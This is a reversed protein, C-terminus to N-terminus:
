GSIQAELGGRCRNFREALAQRTAAEMPGISFWAAWLRAAEAAGGAAAGGSMRQALKQVQLDMRAQRAESPSDIGTHFECELLLAEALRHQEELAQLVTAMQAEDGDGVLALLRDHRQRLASQLTADTLAPEILEALAERDLGDGRIWAQELRDLRAARTALASFSALRQRQEAQEQRTQLQQLLRDSRQEATRELPALEALEARCADALQQLSQPSVNDDQLAVEIRQHIERLQAQRADTEAREQARAAEVDLFIPDVLERLEIWQQQDRRRDGIGLTKWQQQAQKARDPRQEPASAALDRRLEALLKRKALEVQDAQAQLQADVLTLDARLRQGLERRQRPDVDDLQRLSDGLSRRLAILARRDHGIRGLQQELEGTQQSLAETRERRLEKRKEFFPRAPKLAQQILAHFRRALGRYPAKPDIEEILDLRKWEDQLERVRTAMADPHLGAAPLAAAEDCLRRRIENNSWRQWDLLKRAEGRLASVEARISRPLGGLAERLQELRELQQRAATAQQGEVAARLPPLLAMAEAELQERRHREQLRHLQNLQRQLESLAAPPESDAALTELQQTWPSLDLEPNEALQRRAEALSADLAVTRPDEPEVPVEAAPPEEVVSAEAATQAPEAEAAQETQRAAAAAAQLAREHANLAARATEVLGDHRRQWDPDQAQPLTRWREEIAAIRQLGDAPLAHILTELETCIAQARQEAVARDGDALRLAELKERALRHVRKDRTRSQDAIRRLAAETDIRGVLWLRLEADPDSLACDALLGPRQSRELALRRLAMQRARAAVAELVEVSEEVRLLREAVPLLETDAGILGNVYQRRADDRLEPDADHRSRDGWLGLDGLRQLAARRVRPHPDTTALAPLAELLAPEQSEQVAALRRSASDHQWAPKFLRSLLSM